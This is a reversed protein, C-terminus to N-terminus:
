QERLPQKNPIGKGFVGLIMDLELQSRIGLSYGLRIGWFLFNM